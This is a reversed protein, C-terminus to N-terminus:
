RSCKWRNIFPPTITPLVSTTALIARARGTTSPASWVLSNAGWAVPRQIYEATNKPQGAVVMLGLRAVDVGVSIMNTALLVDIPAKGSSGDPQRRRAAEAVPDFIMELHDLIAPLETASLRSTLEAVDYISLLRSALGPARGAHHGRAMRRLRTSVSDDVARKMDGLERLSNFYGVLTMWPDAARGYSDVGYLHQAASLFATYVRILAAKFRM